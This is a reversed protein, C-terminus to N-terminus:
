EEGPLCIIHKFGTGSIKISSKGILCNANQKLLGCLLDPQIRFSLEDDFKIRTKEKIWGYEGSGSIQLTNKTVEVNIFEDIGLEDKSFLKARDIMEVISKPFEIEKGKVRLLKTIMDHGYEEDDDYLRCSILADEECQFHIWAGSISYKLLKYKLLERVPRNPLLIDNPFYPKDKSVKSFTCRTIKLNDCSEIINENIHLCTLIPTSYDTSVSYLCLRIKDKFDEPLKSWKKPKTIDDIPLRIDSEFKIGSKMNRNNLLIQGDKEEITIEDHKCKQIIGFFENARVAGSFGIDLETSVALEDNFTIVNGDQFVFCVSQEVLEQSALGPKVSSLKELLEKKSIKM